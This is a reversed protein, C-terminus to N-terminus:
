LNQFTSWLFVFTITICISESDTHKNPKLKGKKFYAHGSLCAGFVRPSKQIFFSSAADSAMELNRFLLKPEYLFQNTSYFNTTM